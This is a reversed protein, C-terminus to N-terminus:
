QNIKRTYDFMCIGSAVGVNLSRVSGYQRIYVMDHCIEKIEDALGNCEEGFCMVVHKDTPWVYSDIEKAGVINDIGVVYKDSLYAKLEDLEDMKIHKFHSYLHTGVTSRRDIKKRGFIIVEKALFANAGRIITGINFDGEINSCLVSFNHRRSDLDEMIESHTWYKFRDIVNRSDYIEKITAM